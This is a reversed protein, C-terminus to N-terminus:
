IREQCGRGHTIWITKRKQMGCPFPRLTFVARWSEKKWLTPPRRLPLPTVAGTTRAVAESSAMARAKGTAHITDHSRRQNYFEKKELTPTTTHSSRHHPRRSRLFGDGAGRRDRSDHRALPKTFEKKEARSHECKCGVGADWGQKM